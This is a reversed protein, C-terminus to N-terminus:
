DRTLRQIEERIMTEALTPVVEWVVKEVVERSLALVATVQEPTLGLGSLKQSFEAKPAFDAGNTAPAAAAPKPPSSLPAAPAPAPTAAPPPVSDLTIPAPAPRAAPSFASSATAPSSRPPVAAMGGAPIVPAVPSAGQPPSVHSGYAITQTRQRPAAAVDAPRAAIPPQAAPPPAVVPAPAPAQPRRLVSSVKDILQQTDFPKDIYDDAGVQSGRAKDYPQQKSSLLIVFVGPAAAKARQCLEYGNTGELAADVLMVSPREVQLKSMADDANAALVTKYNEGAFTIELVKRMTKSDDVGLLTTTM